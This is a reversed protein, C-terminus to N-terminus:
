DILVLAAPVFLVALVGAVAFLADTRLLIATVGVMVPLAGSVTLLANTLRRDTVARYDAPGASSRPAAGPNPCGLAEISRHLLRIARSAPATQL